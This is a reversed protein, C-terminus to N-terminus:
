KEHESEKGTAARLMARYINAYRTMPSGFEDRYAIMGAYIMEDTPEVPVRVHTQEANVERVGSPPATYLPCIVKRPKNMREWQALDETSANEVFGTAGTEEHQWMWAVPEQQPQASLAAICDILLRELEGPPPVVALGKAMGHTYRDRYEIDIFARLRKVLEDRESM